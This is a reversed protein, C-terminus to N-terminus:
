LRSQDPLKKADPLPLGPDDDGAATPALSLEELQPGKETSTILVDAVTLKGDRARYAAKAINEDFTSGVRGDSFTVRYVTWERGGTSGTKSTVEAVKLEVTPRPTSTQGQAAPSSSQGVSRPEDPEAFADAPPQVPSAPASHGAPYLAATGGLAAQTVMRRVEPDSMDPTHMVRVAVFPRGLDERKYSQKIGCGCEKIAANIARTECARLGHKRSESVQKPQWGKMRESGDRLDWEMSAERTVIAGDMGRYSAIAKVHWYHHLIGVSIYELKTSIGLGEAIKRLGNKALAVEDGKLFPLGEYVEGAVPNVNIQVVSTLIGHSPALGSINSFPTLIHFRQQEWRGVSARYEDATTIVPPTRDTKQLEGGRTTDEM